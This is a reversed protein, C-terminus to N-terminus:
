SAFIQKPLFKFFSQVFLKSTSIWTSEYHILHARNNETCSTTKNYPLSLSALSMTCPAVQTGM